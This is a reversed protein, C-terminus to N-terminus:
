PALSKALGLARLIAADMNYYRYEALRGCLHVNKFGALMKVYNQYLADNETNNVPYFPENSRPSSADYRLPYERLITTADPLKQGSLYKFETIRTFEETNPYNVVAAPQFYEAALREFELRLSRYPLAGFAYGLLEDVAGTFILEKEFPEGDFLIRADGPDITLRSRIDCGLEIKINKHNLMKEFLKTYGEAPMFQYTDTFYRDDYGLTVPVRAFVSKDVNEASTGWQKATYHVFVKEYVFEGFERVTKDASGLLETVAATARGPFAALLKQEIKAAKEKGALTELSMFNFRIPVYKGDIFGLVRHEYPIFDSFRKLFTFVKESNTHFIHPGYRHVLVGNADKEDFMNGGIQPRRELILVTKGSDALSRAAAAGAFGCGAIVVDPITPM